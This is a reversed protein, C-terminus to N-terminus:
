SATRPGLPLCKMVDGGCQGAPPRHDEWRLKEVASPLEYLAELVV